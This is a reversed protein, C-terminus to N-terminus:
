EERSGDESFIKFADVSGFRIKCLNNDRHLIQDKVSFGPDALSHKTYLSDKWIREFAETAPAHREPLIKRKEEQWAKKETPFM